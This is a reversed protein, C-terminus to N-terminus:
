VTSVHSCVLLSIATVRLVCFFRIPCCVLALLAEKRWRESDVSSTITKHWSVLEWLKDTVIKTTSSVLPELELALYGHLHMRRRRWFQLILLKWGVKEVELSLKPYCSFRVCLSISTQDLSRKWTDIRLYCMSRTWTTRLSCRPMQFTSSSSWSRSSRWHLDLIKFCIPPLCGRPTGFRFSTVIIWKQLM